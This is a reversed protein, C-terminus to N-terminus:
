MPDDRVTKVFRLLHGSEILPSEAFHPSFWLHRIEVALMRVLHRVQNKVQAPVRERNKGSVVGKGDLAFRYVLVMRSAAVVAVLPQSTKDDAIVSPRHLVGHHDSVHSIFSTNGRVEEWCHSLPPITEAHHFGRPRGSFRPCSLWGIAHMDANVSAVKRPWIAASSRAVDADKMRPMRTRSKTNSHKRGRRTVDANVGAFGGNRFLHSDWALIPPLIAEGTDGGM